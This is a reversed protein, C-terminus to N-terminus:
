PDKKRKQKNQLMNVSQQEYNLREDHTNPKRHKNNKKNTFFISNLYDLGGRKM